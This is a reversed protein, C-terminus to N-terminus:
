SSISRLWRDIASANAHLFEELARAGQEDNGKPAYVIVVAADDGQGMLRYMAAYAKAVTDSSTLRGHIWYYRWVTLRAGGTDGSLSAERLEATRVTLAGGELAVSRSGSGAQAWRPDLSQVLVNDSSVLKRQANQNRYYGVFLKVAYAGNRYSTTCQASANHFAPLWAPLADPTAEWGPTLVAPAVLRSVPLNVQDRQIQWYAVQPWALVAVVALIAVVWRWGGIAQSAGAGLAAIPKPTMVLLGTEGFAPEAETWRAGIWFLLLMVLAFFVWGYILHDVGTALTNGSLHGLMVILYARVWNALVPVVLSVAVFVVRRRLHQYTLYAYLTGVTVSAIIYRVGSCAEIVSWNGSPIVFQLGERYVPVGSARLALVTFDATWQMLQPMAFEGFPVCFFLFALPFAIARVVTFGLLAQVLLVLMAVLALQSVVNVTALAGLLWAFGAVALLVMGWASPAPVLAALHRRRRWVLWLVLPVVAYGHAFTESRSWIGVISAGTDWYLFGFVCLVVVLALEAQRWVSSLATLRPNM